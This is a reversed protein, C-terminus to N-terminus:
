IAQLKIADDNAIKLAHPGLMFGSEALKRKFAEGLPDYTKDNLDKVL